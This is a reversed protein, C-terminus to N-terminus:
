LNTHVPTAVPIILPPPKIGLYFSSELIKFGGKSFEGSKPWRIKRNRNFRLLVLEYFFDKKNQFHWKPSFHGKERFFAAKILVPEIMGKKSNLFQGKRSFHKNWPHFVSRKKSLPQFTSKKLSNPM